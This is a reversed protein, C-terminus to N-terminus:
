RMPEYGSGRLDLKLLMDTAEDIAELLTRSAYDGLFNGEPAGRSYLYWGTDGQEARSRRRKELEYTVGFLEAQYKGNEQREWRIGDDGEILKKGCWQIRKGM